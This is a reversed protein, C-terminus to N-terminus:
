QAGFQPRTAPPQAICENIDRTTRTPRRGCSTPAGRPWGSGGPTRLSRNVASTKPRRSWDLQCTHATGADKSRFRAPTSPRSVSSTMATTSCCNSGWHWHPSSSPTRTATTTPGIALWRDPRGVTASPTDCCTPRPGVPGIGPVNLCTVAWWFRRHSGITSRTLPATSWCPTAEYGFLEKVVKTMTKAGPRGKVKSDQPQQAPKSASTRLYLGADPDASTTGASRSPKRAHTKIPTADVCSGTAPYARLVDLMGALSPALLRNGVWDRLERRQAQDGLTMPTLRAAFQEETLKRNKPNPSDDFVAIMAHFLRRVVAYSAEISNATLSRAAVGLVHRSRASIRHHLLLNTTSLLVNRDRVAALLLGVLLAEVTLARPRGAPSRRRDALATTFFEVLGTAKIYNRAREVEADSVLDVEDGLLSDTAATANV